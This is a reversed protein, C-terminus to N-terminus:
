TSRCLDATLGSALEVCSQIPGGFGSELRLGITYWMGSFSVLSSFRRRCRLCSVSSQFWSKQALWFMVKLM